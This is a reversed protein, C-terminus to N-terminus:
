SGCSQLRSATMRTESSIRNLQKLSAGGPLQIPITLSVQTRGTVAYQVFHVPTGPALALGHMSPVEGDISRPYLNVLVPSVPFLAGLENNYPTGAWAATTIPGPPVYANPEQTRSWVTTIHTLPPQGLPSRCILQPFRYLSRGSCVGFGAVPFDEATPITATTEGAAHLETVALALHLTVPASKFREYQDRDLMIQVWALHQGPLIRINNSAWWPATWHMGRMPDDLAAKVDDVEVLSGEAVGTFTIPVGIYVKDQRESSGIHVSGEFNAQDSFFALQVPATASGAAPYDHDIQNERGAVLLKGTGIMALAAVMMVARALWLRRTAYQLLVAIALGVALVLVVTMLHSYPVTSEYGRYPRLIFGAAEIAFVIIGLLTLTMRAFTATIAAVAILPLWVFGSLIGFAYLWGAGHVLPSFGALKLIAALAIALPAYIWAAVFLAKAALLKKWEYPRTLWWQQDGVLSEAHIVRAILLWWTVPVLVTPLIVTLLQNRMKYESFDWGFPALRVYILLAALAAVIELWYIRTDKRFIHLVQNM